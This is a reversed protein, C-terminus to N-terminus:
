LFACSCRGTHFAILIMSVPEATESDGLDTFCRTRWIGCSVTININSTIVSSCSCGFALEESYNIAKQFQERIYGLFGDVKLLKGARINCKVELIESYM